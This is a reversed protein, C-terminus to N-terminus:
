KSRRYVTAYVTRFPSVCYDEILKKSAHPHALIRDVFEENVHFSLRMIDAKDERKEVKFAERLNPEFQLIAQFPHNRLEYPSPVNQKGTKEYYGLLRERFDSYDFNAVKNNVSVEIIIHNAAWISRLGYTFDLSDKDFKIRHGKDDHFRKLEEEKTLEPNDRLQEHTVYYSSVREYWEDIILSLISDVTKEPAENKKISM